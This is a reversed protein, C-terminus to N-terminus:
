YPIFFLIRAFPRLPSQDVNDTRRLIVEGLETLMAMASVM